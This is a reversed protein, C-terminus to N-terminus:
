SFDKNSVIPIVNGWIMAWIVVPASIGMAMIMLHGIFRKETSIFLRPYKGHFEETM